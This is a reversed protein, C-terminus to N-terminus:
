TSWLGLYKPTGPSEGAKDSFSGHPPRGSLMHISPRQEQPDYDLTRIKLFFSEISGFNINEVM